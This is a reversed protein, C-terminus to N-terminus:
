KTSRASVNVGMKREEKQVKKKEKERAEEDEEDETARMNPAKEIKERNLV